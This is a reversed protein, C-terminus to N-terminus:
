WIFTAFFRPNPSAVLGFWLGKAGILKQFTGFVALVVANGAVLFLLSRVHGRRRLVYLLNFCSLVLGNFQWLERAALRPLAATPLWPKPSGLVLSPEGAVVIERFGPNFCSTIILADYLWLPWLLRVAPHLRGDRRRHAVSAWVFLLMGATGLWAIVQRAWPAQGGFAWSTFILLVGCHFLVVKTLLPTGNDPSHSRHGPDSM